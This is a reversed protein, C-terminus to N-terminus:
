TPSAVVVAVFLLIMLALSIWVYMQMEIMKALLPLGRLCFLKLSSSYRWMSWAVFAWSLAFALRILLYLNFQSYEFYVGSQRAMGFLQITSLASAIALVVAIVRLVVIAVYVHRRTSASIDIAPSSSEPDLSTPSAYPDDRDNTQSM